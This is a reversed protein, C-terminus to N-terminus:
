KGLKRVLVDHWDVEPESPRAAPEEHRRAAAERNARAAIRIAGPHGEERAMRLITMPDLELLALDEPRPDGAKEM